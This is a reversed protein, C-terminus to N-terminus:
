IHQQVAIQTFVSNIILNHRSPLTDSGEGVEEEGVEAEETSVRDTQVSDEQKVVHIFLTSNNKYANM